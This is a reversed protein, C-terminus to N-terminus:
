KNGTPYLHKGKTYLPTDHIVNGIEGVMIVPKGDFYSIHKGDISLACWAVPKEQFSAQETQQHMLKLQLSVIYQRIDEIFEPTVHHKWQDVDISWAGDAYEKAFQQVFDIRKLIDM